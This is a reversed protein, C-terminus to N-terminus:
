PNRELRAAQRLRRAIERRGQHPMYRSRDARAKRPSAVGPGIPGPASIAPAASAMALSALAMMRTQRM